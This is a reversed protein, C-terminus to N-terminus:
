KFAGKIHYIAHTSQYFLLPMRKRLGAGQNLSPEPIGEYLCDFVGMPSLKSSKVKESGYM